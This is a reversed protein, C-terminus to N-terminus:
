ASSQIEVAVAVPSAWDRTANVPTFTRDHSGLAPTVVHATVTGLSM